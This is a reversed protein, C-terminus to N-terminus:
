RRPVKANVEDVWREIVNIGADLLPQEIPGLLLFKGDIVDRNRIAARRFMLEPRGVALSPGPAVPVAFFGDRFRYYLERCDRSWRPAGGGDRSVQLRPQDARLHRVYVEPRGTEDSVHAIWPGCPSFEPNAGMFSAPAGGPTGGTRVFRVVAPSSAQEPLAYAILRGDPSSSALEPIRAGEPVALREAPGVGDVRQRHLGNRNSYFVSTGDHNWAPSFENGSDQSVRTLTEREIDYSYIDDNAASVQVAIRRSDPSVRFRDIVKPIVFTRTVIGQRDLVELVSREPRADGRVYVLTGTRAAVAYQGVGTATDAM